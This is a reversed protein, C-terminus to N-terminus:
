VNFYLFWLSLIMNLALQCVVVFKVLGLCKKCKFPTLTPFFGNLKSMQPVLKELFSSRSPCIAETQSPFFVNLHSVQSALNKCLCWNVLFILKTWWTHSKHYKRRVFLHNSYVYQQLAYFSLLWDYTVSTISIKSSFIIPVLMNSCNMFSLLWEFAGSTISIKSSFIIQVLM